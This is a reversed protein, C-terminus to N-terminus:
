RRGNPQYQIFETTFDSQNSIRMTSQIQPGAATFAQFTPPNVKPKTYEINASAVFSGMAQVYSFSLILAAYVDFDKEKNLDAFAKLLQPSASDNYLITGGWFGGQPFAALDFRTVIGLNNGGGKLALFLDPSSTANISVIAGSALVVQYNVVNDCAFGYRASFYSIGGICYM